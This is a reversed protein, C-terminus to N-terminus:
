CGGARFRARADTRGAPQGRTPATIAASVVPGTGSCNSLFRARETNGSDM